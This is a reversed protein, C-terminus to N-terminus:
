ISMILALKNEQALSKVDDDVLSSAFQSETVQHEFTFGSKIQSKVSPDKSIVWGIASLRTSPHVWVTREKIMEGKSGGKCVKIKVEISELEDTRLGTQLRKNVALMREKDKLMAQKLREECGGKEDIQLDKFRKSLEKASDQFLKICPDGEYGDFNFETLRSLSLDKVNPQARTTSQQLAELTQDFANQLAIHQQDTLINTSQYCNTLERCLTALLLSQAHYSRGIKGVTKLLEYYSAPIGEVPGGLFEKLFDDYLQIVQTKDGKGNFYGLAGALLSKATMWPKDQKFFRRTELDISQNSGLKILGYIAMVSKVALVDWSDPLQHTDKFIQQIDQAGRSIEGLLAHMKKPFELAINQNLHRKIGAVFENLLTLDDHRYAAALDVRDKQDPDLLVSLSKHTTLRELVTRVITRNKEWGSISARCDDVTTTNMLNNEENGDDETEFALLLEELPDIAVTFKEYASWDGDNEVAAILDNIKDVLCRAADVFRYSVQTNRRFACVDAARIAILHEAVM